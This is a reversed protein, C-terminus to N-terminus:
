SRGKERARLLPQFSDHHSCHCHLKQATQGLTHFTTPSVNLSLGGVPRLHSRRLSSRIDKPTAQYHDARWFLKERSAGADHSIRDNRRKQARHKCATLSNNNSKKEHESRKPCSDDGGFRKFISIAHRSRRSYRMKKKLYAGGDLEQFYIRVFYERLIFARTRSPKQSFFRSSTHFPHRQCSRLLYTSILSTNDGSM